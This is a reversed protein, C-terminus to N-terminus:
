AKCKQAGAGAFSWPLIFGYQHLRKNSLAQNMQRTRTIRWAGLGSYALGCGRTNVGLRRLANRRGRPTRWRLWFCKRMHRRIWGSLDEVDWSRETLHFYNWWGRIYRSWQERLQKSTLSQRANWLERVRAKMRELSKPAIVITGDAQIRYGLIASAETPGSGSKERNVPVKLHKEIWQTISALVREASRASTVFIAIDDAYRVFSLGRKELEKDLPDLYINALLPSLPGGQPTGKGRKCRSGDKRQVPARLIAGILKKLSKEQVHEGVLHMLKDHDIEDFFSKLDIDVVYRKGMQVYKQGARVADHASRKPRYGYSHESFFPECRESLKQHIAQQIWREQVNPVGLTREGGNAKPITVALVAGPKYEGARLKGEISEWHERIHTMTQEIKRGDPGPAGNNARVVKWAENLNEKELVASLTPKPAEMSAENPRMKAEKAHPSSKTFM